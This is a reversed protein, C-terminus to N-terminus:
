RSVVWEGELFRKVKRVGAMSVVKYAWRNGIFRGRRIVGLLVHDIYFVRGDASVSITWAFDAEDIEIRAVLVPRLMRRNRYDKLKRESELYSEYLGNVGISM